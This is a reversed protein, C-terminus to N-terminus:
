MKEKTKTYVRKIKFPTFERGGGEYFRNFFEIYQLRLSHVAAGLSQILLNALHAIIMVIIFIVFGILPIMQIVLEGVVNIALAMGATSLGLAILRAYSLWDGVYGTISFFGVPGRTHIFLLIIGLLTVIIAIYVFITELNWDLIMHGILLGGGVQLPIWSGYQLFLARYEKNRYAQLMGLAIGLNLQVLALILAVTLLIIPNRLGDVPLHVGMIDLSYLPKNPDGYIFRPILDAFFGNTLFGVVTTTVGLWIGMFSWEKFFPSHKGLKFYGYLSFILIIIGYGADGLMFGFFLIFFIGAFFMPNIDNYKPTAFLELITKFSGAWSPTDYYTPPNDPNLSPSEFNCIEHDDSVLALSEKLAVQNKELIWGRIIYTYNTKVFNNSAEIKVIELQLEERLALLDSLYHDALDCLLKVIKKTEKNIQEKEKELSKLIDKPFGSLGQFNFESVIERFIKEIIEKESIYSVVIVVWEAKKGTGFQKSYILSKELGEIQTRISKIDTTKGAKIILYKSERIDLVDVNFDKIYNLQQINLNIKKTEDDLKHLKQEDELIDKEIKNLFGEAYSYMEDLTKDEIIKIKPLDPNLFAKIGKKKRIVKTLINILKSFRDKYNTCTDFEFNILDNKSKIELNLDDKSIDIIEMLGTEHLNKVVTEVYNQHIIISTKKM